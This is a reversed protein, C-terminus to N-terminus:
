PKKGDRVGLKLALDRITRVSQRVLRRTEAIEKSLGVSHARASQKLALIRLHIGLLTQAIDDQLRSSSKHRESEQAELMRRAQTHLRKGLQNSNLMLRARKKGSAALAVEASQRSAIGGALVLNSAHSEKTRRDLTKTLAKIRGHTKLSASHTAELPATADAFFKKSRLDLRNKTRVSRAARVLPKMTRAHVRALDLTELGLPIAQRGLLRATRSSAAAGPALHRRLASQYLGAWTNQRATMM